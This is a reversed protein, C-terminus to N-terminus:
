WFTFITSCLRRINLPNVLVKCVYNQILGISSGLLLQLFVFGISKLSCNLRILSILQNLTEYIFM